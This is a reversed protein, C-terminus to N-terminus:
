APRPIGICRGSVCCDSATDGITRGSGPRECAIASASGGRRALPVRALGFLCVLVFACPLAASTSLM